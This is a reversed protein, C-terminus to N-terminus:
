QIYTIIIFILRRERSNDYYKLRVSVFFFITQGIKFDKKKGFCLHINVIKKYEGM